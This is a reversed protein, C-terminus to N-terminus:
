RLAKERVHVSAPVTGRAANVLAKETRTFAVMVKQDRKEPKKPSGKRSM